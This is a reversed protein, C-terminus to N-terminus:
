IFHFITVNSDELNTLGLTALALDFPGFALGIKIIGASINQINLRSLRIKPDKM